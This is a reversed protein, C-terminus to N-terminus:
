TLFAKKTGDEIEGPKALAPDNLLRSARLLGIGNSALHANIGVWWDPSSPNENRQPM